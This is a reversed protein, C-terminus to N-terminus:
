KVSGKKTTQNTKSGFKLNVTRAPSPADPSYIRNVVGLVGPVQKALEEAINRETRSGVRGALHVVRNLVGVRLKDSSIRIDEKLVNLITRRLDDDITLTIQQAMSGRKELLSFWSSIVPERYIKM